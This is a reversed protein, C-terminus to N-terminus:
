GDGVQAQERGLAVDQRAAAIRAGIGGRRVMVKAHIALALAPSTHGMAQQVEAPTAGPGLPNIILTALVVAGVAGGVGSCSSHSVGAGLRYAV